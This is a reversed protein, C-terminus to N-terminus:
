RMPVTDCGIQRWLAGLNVSDVHVLAPVKAHVAAAESPHDAQQGKPKSAKATIAGDHAAQEILEAVVATAEDATLAVIRMNDCYVDVFDGVPFPKWGMSNFGMPVVDFSGESQEHKSPTAGSKSCAEMKAMAMTKQNIAARTHPGDGDATTREIVRDFLAIAELLNASGSMRVLADAKEYLVRTVQPDDADGAATAIEVLRDYLAVAESLNASGGMRSLASAKHYLTWVMTPHDAGLTASFIEIVRDFLAVATDVNSGGMQRLTVAKRHLIEATQPHDRGFTATRIKIVRDYLEVAASLNASGGLKGLLLAKELLAMVTNPDDAGLTTTTFEIFHDYDTVAASLNAWGGTRELASAKEHLALLTLAATESATLPNNNRRLMEAPTRHDAGVTTSPHQPMERDHFFAV